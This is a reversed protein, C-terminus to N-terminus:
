PIKPAKWRTFFAIEEENTGIDELSFSGGKMNERIFGIYYLEGSGERLRALWHRADNRHVEVRFRKLEEESTGIDALSFHGAKVQSRLLDIWAYSPEKRLVALTTRAKAKPDKLSKQNKRTSDM